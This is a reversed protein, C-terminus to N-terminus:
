LEDFDGCNLLINNYYSKDGFIEDIDDNTIEEIFSGKITDIIQNIINYVNKLANGVTRDPYEKTKDYGINEAETVYEGPAPNDLSFPLKIKAM